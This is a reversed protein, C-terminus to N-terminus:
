EAIHQKLKALQAEVTMDYVTGDMDVAFGGASKEDTVTQIEIDGFREKLGSILMDLSAADFNPAVTIVTKRM